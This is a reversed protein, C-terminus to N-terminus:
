TTAACSQFAENGIQVPRVVVKAEFLPQVFNESADRNILVRVSVTVRLATGVPSLRM